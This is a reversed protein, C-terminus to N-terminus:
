SPPTLPMLQPGAVSGAMRLLVSFAEAPALNEGGGLLSAVQPLSPLTRTHVISPSSYVACHVSTPPWESQALSTAQHWFMPSICSISALQESSPVQLIQVLLLSPLLDAAAHSSFHFIFKASGPLSNGRQFTLQLWTPLMSATEPPSLWVRTRLSSGFPSQFCIWIIFSSVDCSLLPCLHVEDYWQM